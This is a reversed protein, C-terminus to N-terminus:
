DDSSSEDGSRIAKKTGILITEKYKGIRTTGMLAHKENYYSANKKPATAAIGAKDLRKELEHEVRRRQGAFSPSAVAALIIGVLVTRM